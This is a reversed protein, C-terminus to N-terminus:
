GDPEPHSPGPWPDRRIKWHGGDKRKGLADCRGLAFKHSSPQPLLLHRPEGTDPDLMWEALDDTWNAKESPPMPSILVWYPVVDPFRDGSEGFIEKLRGAKHKLVPVDWKMFGKAELLVVHTKSGRAFAVVLDSDSNDGLEVGDHPDYLRPEEEDVLGQSWMLAGCLWNLNYDMTVYADSPLPPHMGIVKSLEDRFEHGLPFTLRDLAWGVLIFRERRNFAGMADLLSPM